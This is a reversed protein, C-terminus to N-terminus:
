YVVVARDRSLQTYFLFRSFFLSCMPARKPVQQFFIEQHQTNFTTCTDRKMGKLYENKNSKEEERRREHPPHLM